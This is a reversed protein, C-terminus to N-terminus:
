GGRLGYGDLTMATYGAPARRLCNFKGWSTQTAAEFDPSLPNCPESFAACFDASPMPPPTVRQLGSRNSTTLLDPRRTGLSRCGIWSSSAKAVPFAPSARFGSSLLASSQAAIAPFWLGTTTSRCHLPARVPSNAYPVRAPVVCYLPAPSQRSSRRAAPAFVPRLNPLRQQVTAILRHRYAPALYRLRASASPTLETNWSYEVPENLLRHLLYQLAIEVRGEALLRITKTRSTRRM